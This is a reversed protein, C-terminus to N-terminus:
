LFRLTLAKREKILAPLFPNKQRVKRRTVQERLYLISTTPDANKGGEAARKTAQDAKENGEVDKHGPVWLLTVPTGHDRLKGADEWIKRIISPIGQGNEILNLVSQSDIFM